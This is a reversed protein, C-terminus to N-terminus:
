PLPTARVPPVFVAPPPTATALKMTITGSPFQARRVLGTDTLCYEGPDVGTGSVTFCQAAPLAGSAPLLGNATVTLRGAGAALSALTTTFVRQLGPDFLRPLAKGPKAVLLCARKTRTVQCSVAGARTTILRSSTGNVDVDVRYVPGRKYVRAVGDPRKPDVSDLAYIGSFSTKAATAALAALTQAAPTTTPTPSSPSPSPSSASGGDSSGGSCGALAVAVALLSTAALGATRAVRGV